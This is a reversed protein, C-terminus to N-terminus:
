LAGIVDLARAVAAVHTGCLIRGTRWADRAESVTLWHVALDETAELTQAAVQRAGRALVVHMMMSSREPFVAYSGILAFSDAAAGVEELLERRACEVPDEGDDIAGAPLELTITDVGLRYQEVFPVRGDDTLAFVATWSPLTLRIFNPIETGNGLRIHETWVSLWPLLDLVPTRSFVRWAEPM